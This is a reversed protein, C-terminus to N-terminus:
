DRVPRTGLPSIGYSAYVERKVSVPVNRVKASYGKMQIDALTVDLVDGPTLKPDPLIPPSGAPQQADASPSLITLALFAVAVLRPLFNVRKFRSPAVFHDPHDALCSRCVSPYEAVGVTQFAHLPDFDFLQSLQRVRKSDRPQRCGAAGGALSGM